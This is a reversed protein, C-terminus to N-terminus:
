NVKKFPFLCILKKEKFKFNINNENKILELKITEEGVGELSVIKDNIKTEKGLDNWVIKDKFLDITTPNTKDGMIKNMDPKKNSKLANLAEKSFLISTLGCSMEDMPANSVTYKKINKQMDNSDFVYKQSVETEGCSVLLSLLIIPLFNIKNM